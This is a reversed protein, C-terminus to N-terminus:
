DIYRSAVPQFIQPDFGPPISIKQMCVPRSHREGLRRYLPYLTKERLTRRGPSSTSRTGEYGLNFFSYVKGRRGMKAKLTQQLTFHVKVKLRKPIPICCYPSLAICNTTTFLSPSPLNDSYCQTGKCCRVAPISHIIVSLKVDANKFM